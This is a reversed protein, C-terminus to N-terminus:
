SHLFQLHFLLLFFYWIALIKNDWHFNHDIKDIEHLSEGYVIDIKM